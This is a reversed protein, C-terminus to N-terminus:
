FRTIPCILRVDNALLIQEFKEKDAGLQTGDKSSKSVVDDRIIVLNAAKSASRSALLKKLYFGFLDLNPNSLGLLSKPDPKPDFATSALLCELGLILMNQCGLFSQGILHHTHICIHEKTTEFIHELKELPEHGIDDFAQLKFTSGSSALRKLKISPPVVILFPDESDKSLFFRQLAREILVEYDQHAKAANRKRLYKKQRDNLCYNVLWNLQTTGSVGDLHPLELSGIRTDKYGSDSQATGLHLTPPHGVFMDEWNMHDELDFEEICVLKRQKYAYNKQSRNLDVLHQVLEKTKGYGGISSMLPSTLESVICFQPPRYILRHKLSYLRTMLTENFGGSSPDMKGNDVPQGIVYKTAPCDERKNYRQEIESLRQELKHVFTQRHLKNIQKVSEVLKSRLKGSPKQQSFNENSKGCGTSSVMFDFDDLAILRTTTFLSDRSALQKQLGSPTLVLVQPVSAEGTSIKSVKGKSDVFEASFSEYEFDADQHERFPCCQPPMDVILSELYYKYKEVLADTPVVVVSDLLRRERVPAHTLARNLAMVAIALSKGSQASRQIMLNNEARIVDWIARQEPSFELRSRRPQLRQLLDSINQEVKPVLAMEVSSKNYVDLDILPKQADQTFHRCLIRLQGTRRLLLM